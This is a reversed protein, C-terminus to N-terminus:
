FQTFLAGVYKATFFQDVTVHVINQHVCHCSYHTQLIPSACHRSYNESACLLAAPNGVHVSFHVTVHVTARTFKERGIFVM